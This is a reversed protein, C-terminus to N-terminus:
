GAGLGRDDGMERAEENAAPRKPMPIVKRQPVGGGSTKLRLPLVQPFHYATGSDGRPRNAQNAAPISALKISRAALTLRLDAWTSLRGGQRKFALKDARTPLGCYSAEVQAREPLSKRALLRQTADLALEPYKRAVWIQFKLMSSATDIHAERQALLPGALPDAPTLKQFSHGIPQGNLRGWFYPFMGRCSPLVSCHHAIIGSQPLELIGPSVAVPALIHLVDCQSARIFAQLAPSNAHEFRHVILGHTHAMEEWTRPEARRRRKEIASFLAFRLTDVLGFVRLYWLSRLVGGYQHIRKPLVAVHTLLLGRKELLPVTRHWAPLAFVTDDEVILAILKTM